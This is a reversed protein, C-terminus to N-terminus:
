ESAERLQVFLKAPAESFYKLLAPCLWGERGKWEYINGGLDQRVWSLEVTAGPFPNASFFMLFGSRANAIGEQELAEDIMENAGGVFPERILGVREDDFVWAGEWYYPKIVSISNETM